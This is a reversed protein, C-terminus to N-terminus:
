LKFPHFSLNKAPLAAPPSAHAQVEGSRAMCVQLVQRLMRKRDEAQETYLQCNNMNTRYTPIPLTPLLAAAAAGRCSGSSVSGSRQLRGQQGAGGGKRGGWRVREM